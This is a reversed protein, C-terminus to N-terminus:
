AKDEPIDSWDDLDIDDPYQERFSAVLEAISEM